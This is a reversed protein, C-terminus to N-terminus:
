REFPLRESRWLLLRGNITGGAYWKGQPHAATAILECKGSLRQFLFGDRSYLGLECPNSTPSLYARGELFWTAGVRAPLLEQEQGQGHWLFASDQGTLVLIEGNSGASLGGLEQGWAASAQEELGPLSRLSLKGNLTAALLAKGDAAFALASIDSLGEDQTEKLLKEERWNWLSIRGAADAAALQDDMLAIVGPSGGPLPIRHRVKGSQFEVFVAEGQETAGALLEGGAPFLLETVQGEPWRYRNLLGWNGANLIFISDSDSAAALYRGDPAFVLQEISSLSLQQERNPLPYPFAWSRVTSDASATFLIDESDLYSISQLAGHHGKLRRYPQGRKTETAQVSGGADASILYQGGGSFALAAIDAKHGAIAAGPEWGEGVRRWLQLAGNQGGIALLSSAQNFALAAAAGGGWQLGAAPGLARTRFSFELIEGNEMGIFALEEHTAPLSGPAMSKAPGPLALEQLFGSTQIDWCRVVGGAHLTLLWQGQTSVALARVSAGDTGPQPAFTDHRKAKWDWRYAKRDESGIFLSGDPGFALAYCPSNPAAFSDIPEREDTSYLYVSNGAGTAVAFHAGDPSFAAANLHHETKLLSQYLVNQEYIRYATELKGEDEPAQRYAELIVPLGAAPDEEALLRGQNYENEIALQRRRQETSRWFFLAVAAVVAIAVVAARRFIRNRRREAELEERRQRSKEILEIEMPLWVRMGEAGEEVLSLDDEEIVAEEPDRIYDIVKTELIRLARQGPKDSDRMEKQVIPALTDHALATKAGEMGALLYTDQFRHILEDLIDSQHQYLIRLQQLDRSEATGLRTTHFNLIDLALGSSAVARGATKEWQEIQKMQQQFFDSLLLGKEQLQHYNEAKFVRPSQGEQLQWMKTLIIQLVPSIPSDPDAILNNAIELPLGPEVELRYKQRLQETSALGNVVEIIDKKDLKDLFFEERLIRYRNFIKLFDSHYEKRYSFLLKGKPRQNPEGFIHQVQRLLSELENPLEKNPRTFIEEVQDLIILLGKKESAAELSLWQRRLDAGIPPQALSAQEQKERYNQILGEVQQRADGELQSLTNELQRIDQQIKNKAIEKDEGPWEEPAGEVGLAEMLQRLLGKQRDRRVYKLDYQEELRPFLGAYLLSSKGVGSQGNLLVVPAGLQMTLQRYLQQIASGRGFFVPAEEITYRRLYRFPENPPSYKEPVPPLGFLPNDAAMPLNWGPAEGSPDRYLLEWPFRGEVAEIGAGRKQLEYYKGWDKEGRAAVAEHTAWQWAKDISLGDALGEYFHISLETALADSVAQVTGIVAPVGKDKLANAQQISFCGNLFALQLSGIGALLPLLGAAHASASAGSDQELLLDLSNAHGSYHFIAIRGQYQPKRLTDALLALTTNPLIELDCLGATEARELVTKLANLERPLNRLYRNGKERENAFALVIVPKAM